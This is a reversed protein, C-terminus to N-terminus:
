VNIESDHPNVNSWMAERMRVMLKKELSLGASVHWSERWAESGEEKGPVQEPAALAIALSVLGAAKDDEYPPLTKKALRVREVIRHAASLVSHAASAGMAVKLATYHLDLLDEISSNGNTIQGLAPPPVPPLVLQESPFELLVPAPPQYIANKAKIKRGSLSLAFKGLLRMKPVRKKNNLGRWSPRCASCQNNPPRRATKNVCSPM